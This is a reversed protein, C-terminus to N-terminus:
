TGEMAKKLTKAWVLIKYYQLLKEKGTEGLCSWRRIKFSHDTAKPVRRETQIEVMKVAFFTLFLPHTFSIKINKKILFAAEQIGCIIPTFLAAIM